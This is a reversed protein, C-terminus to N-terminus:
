CVARLGKCNFSARILSVGDRVTLCISRGDAGGSLPLWSKLAILGIPRERQRRMAPAGNPRRRYGALQRQYLTSGRAAAKDQRWAHCPIAYSYTRFDMRSRPVTGIM